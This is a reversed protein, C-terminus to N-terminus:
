PLQQLLFRTQGFRVQFEAVHLDLPVIQVLGLDVHPHRDLDQFSTPLPDVIHLGRLQQGESDVQQPLDQEPPRLPDRSAVIALPEIVQECRDCTSVSHRYPETTELLGAAELDEVVAARCEERTMGRYKAPAADTMKADEDIVKIRELKHREGIEFDAPDHAPTVKVAGTGFEMEVHEDGVVPIVRGTLPLKLKRGIFAKFRKDKPNVAVGSDGLMTEPRTTAVVIWSPTGPNSPEPTGPDAAQGSPGETGQDRGREDGVLPYRIYWLSSDREVFKM